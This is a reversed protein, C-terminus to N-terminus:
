FCCHLWPIICTLDTWSCQVSIESHRRRGRLIGGDRGSQTELEEEGTL